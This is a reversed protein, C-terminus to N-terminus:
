SWIKPELDKEVTTEQVVTSKRACSPKAPGSADRSRALVFRGSDREQHLVRSRTAVTQKTLRKVQAPPALPATGGLNVGAGAPEM